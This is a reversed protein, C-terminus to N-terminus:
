RSRQMQSQLKEASRLSVWPSRMGSSLHSSSRSQRPASGAWSWSHQYARHGPTLPGSWCHSALSCVSQCPKMTFTWFMLFVNWLHEFQTWLKCEESKVNKWWYLHEHGRTLIMKDIDRGWKGDKSYKDCKEYTCTVFYVFHTLHKYIGSLICNGQCVTKIFELERFFKLHNM